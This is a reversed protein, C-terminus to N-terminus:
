RGFNLRETVWVLVGDSAFVSFIILNMSPGVWKSMYACLWVYVSGNISMNWTTLVSVKVSVHVVLKRRM